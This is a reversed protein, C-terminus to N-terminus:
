LRPNARLSIPASPFPLAFHTTLTLSYGRDFSRYHFGRVFFLPSPLFPQINKCTLWWCIDASNEMFSALPWFFLNIYLNKNKQLRNTSTVNNNQRRYSHHHSLPQMTQKRFHSCDAWLIFHGCTIYLRFLCSRHIVLIYLLLVSLKLVIRRM